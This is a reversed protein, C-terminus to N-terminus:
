MSPPETDIRIEYLARKFWEQARDLGAALDASPMARYGKSDLARVYAHLMPSSFSYRGSASDYFLVYDRDRSTLKGLYQTLNSPRYRPQTRQIKQLLEAHTCGDKNSEALAHIILRCNDYMRRRKTRTARDYVDRLSDAADELWLQVAGELDSESFAYGSVQTEMVQAELCMNLCLQHCVSPLGNSYHVISQMTSEPISVNLLDKGKKIIQILEPQGMLDVEIESIRNWMEPECTLIERASGAAGIAIIRVAPCEDAMDMFLKM